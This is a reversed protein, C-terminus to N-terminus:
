LLGNGFAKGDHKHEGAFPDDGALEAQMDELTIRRDRYGFRLNPLHGLESKGKRNRFTLIFLLRQGGGDELEYNATGAHLTNMNFVVADGAKLMTYRSEAKGLMADRADPDFQGDDFAKRPGKSGTHTGPLFCTTGQEYRVNALAIFACFLAPTKQWPTDSHIPQRSAGAETRLAVLDYLEPSNKGSGGDCTEKFLEALPSGPSLLERLASVLPGNGGKEAAASKEDVLPLLLYGRKKDFTEVPVNFRGLCNKPDDEVAAFAAHLEEKVCTHLAAASEKSLVGPVLCVGKEAITGARLNLAQQAMSSIPSDSQKSGFGAGGKGGAGKKSKKGVQIRPSRTPLKMEQTNPELLQQEKLARRAIAERSDKVLLGKVSGSLPPLGDALLQLSIVARPAPQHVLAACVLPSLLRM